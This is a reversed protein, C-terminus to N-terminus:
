AVEERFPAPFTGVHNWRAPLPQVDAQSEGLAAPSPLWLVPLGDSSPRGVLWGPDVLLEDTDLAVTARVFRRQPRTLRTVPIWPSDPYVTYAWPSGDPGLDEGGDLLPALGPHHCDLSDPGPFPTRPDCQVLVRRGLRSDVARYLGGQRRRDLAQGLRYRGNGLEDM